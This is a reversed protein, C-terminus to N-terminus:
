GGARKSRFGRELLMAEIRERHDGQLEIARGKVTGGAGCRSKLSRALEEVDVDAPFGEVVIVEKGRRKERRLKIVEARLKGADSM